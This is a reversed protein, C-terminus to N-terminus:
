PAHRYPSGLGEDDEAGAWLKPDYPADPITVMEHPEQAAEKPASERLLALSEGLRTIDARVRRMDLSNGVQQELRSACRLLANLRQQVADLEEQLSM